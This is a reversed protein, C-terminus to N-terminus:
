PLDISQWAPKELALYVDNFSDYIIQDHKLPITSRGNLTLLGFRGKRSVVVYGNGLDKLSDYKSHILVVGSESALGVQPTEKGSVLKTSFLKYRNNQAPVIRSYEAPIVADGKRNVMGYHGDKRVLALKGRFPFAEEFHPQVVLHEGKDIYGWRGLLKVAAMNAQFHRISDYRNAIRLRGLEDVFGFKDNIKVGLFGDTMPFLDQFNNELGFLEEGDGDLIGYKGEKRFVYVQQDQLASITDYQVKMMREGHYSVLGYKGEASREWISHGNHILEHISTFLIEGQSNILGYRIAEPRDPETRFIYLDDHIRKLSLRAGQYNLPKIKWRGDPDIVGQGDACDVSAVGGSFSTARLYQCGIVEVGTTDLFGWRGKRKVLFRGERQPFIAQYSFSTLSLGDRNFLSWSSTGGVQQAAIIFQGDVRLSDYEPALVVEHRAETGRRSLLVGFKEGQTLVAFDGSLQKVQWHIPVVAKGSKDVFTKTEGLSVQYLNVGVPQMEEFTYDRVWQNEATYVHWTNFPLVSVQSPSDIKIRRYQPAIMERGDQHIIGQKGDRYIIALQHTFASISDYVFETIKAGDNDYVATQGLLNTVGYREPSLPEVRLHDFGLIAAGGQDLIGYQPKHNRLVSAILQSEHPELSHYRFSLEAEGKNNILGYRVQGGKGKKRLSAILLKEQFPRLTTYRADSVKKNKIDILGWLNGERFGIVKHYVQPLGASWGLDEYAVPIIVKGNEDFLGKKHDKEVITFYEDNLASAVIPFLFIFIFLRWTFIPM